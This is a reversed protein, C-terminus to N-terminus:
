YQGFDSGPNRSKKGSISDGFGQQCRYGQSDYIDFPCQEIRASDPFM